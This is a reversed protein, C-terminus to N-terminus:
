PRQHYTWLTVKNEKEGENWYLTIKIAAVQYLHHNPDNSLRKMEIRRTFNTDPFDLAFPPANFPRQAGSDDADDDYNGDNIPDPVAPVDPQFPLNRARILDLMERGWYVAQTRREADGAAGIAYFLVSATALVGVGVVFTAVLVEALSLGSLSRRTRTM